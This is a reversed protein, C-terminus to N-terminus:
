VRSVLLDIANRCEKIRSKSVKISDGYVPYYGNKLQSVPYGRHASVVGATNFDRLQVSYAAKFQEINAIQGGVPSFRAAHQQYANFLTQATASSIAEFAKAAGKYQTLRNGVIAHVIPRDIHEADARNAYTYQGYIPHPPNAGFILSFMANTAVRSADDANVPVILRQASSIAVETYICFSPNTYIFVTVPTAGARFAFDDIFARLSLHVWKWPNADKLLAAQSARESILPAMPELNGDGCLLYLNDPISNNFDHPRSVFQNPDPLAAGQGHTLVTALYGVVTHPADGTLCLNLARTEGQTGGGLLMMSVNAQPCCDIVLVHEAPHLEAYRTAVHFTVTSKGVGGKNNWLAYSFRLPM